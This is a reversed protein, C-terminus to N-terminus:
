PCSHRIGRTAYSKRLLPLLKYGGLTALPYCAFPRTAVGGQGREEAIEGPEGIAERADKQFFNVGGVERPEHLLPERTKPPELVEAFPRTEVAIM